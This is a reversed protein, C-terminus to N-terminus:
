LDCGRFMVAKHCGIECHKLFGPVLMVEKTTPIIHVLCHQYPM